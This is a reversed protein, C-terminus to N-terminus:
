VISFLTRRISPQRQGPPVQEYLKQNRMWTAPNSRLAHRPATRRRPRAADPASDRQSGEATANVTVHTISRAPFENARGSRVDLTSGDSNLRTFLEGQDLMSRLIRAADEPTVMSPLSRILAAKVLALSRGGFYHIEALGTEGRDLLDGLTHVDNRRLMNHVGTPLGPLAEEILAERPRGSRRALEDLPLHTAHTM